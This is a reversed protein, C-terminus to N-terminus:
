LYKASLPHDKEEIAQRLKAIFDNGHLGELIRVGIPQYYVFKKLNEPFYPNNMLRVADKETTIIIKREGKLGDFIREIKELDSRGFDHHDPFHCVKREFEYTNFHRIFDRPNAIGTLLLVTDRATLREPYVEYPCSDEFVPKLKGYEYRSFYQGQYPMLQLDTEVIRYDLPLMDAPCKTVIVFNARYIGKSNERLRGLPLIKDKYFPHSYDTLVISVKPRVYRHQFADDLIILNIDPFDDLLQKIGHRRNECVAVHAMMGFKQYMQYPEDGITRPTSKDNALVYGKTKRKYGRSLIAIKYSGALQSVIYEVHPTKGTGGVALNGVSIVPVDFEESRIFHNEFLSNRVSTVVDYAWALPTLLVTLIKDKTNRDIINM